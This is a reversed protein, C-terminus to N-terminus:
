VQRRVDKGAIVPQHPVVHQHDGAGIGVARGDGDAGISLSHARTLDKLAEVGAEQVGKLFDANAIVQEGVGVGLIVMADGLVDEQGAQVVAIKIM